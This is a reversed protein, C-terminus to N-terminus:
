KWRGEIGVEFLSELRCCARNWIMHRAPNGLGGRLIGAISHIWLCKYKMGRCLKLWRAGYKHACRQRQVLMKKVAYMGGVDVEKPYLAEWVYGLEECVLIGSNCKHM